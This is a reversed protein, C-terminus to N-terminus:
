GNFHEELWMAIASLGFVYSVQIPLLVLVLAVWVSTCWICGLPTRNTWSVPHGDQDCEVGTLVRLRWLLDLPGPEYVLMHSLRWVAFAMFVLDM